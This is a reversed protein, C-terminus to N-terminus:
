MCYDFGARPCLLVEHADVSRLHVRVSCAPPPRPAPCEHSPRTPRVHTIGIWVCYLYCFLIGQLSVAEKPLRQWFSPFCPHFYLHRNHRDSIAIICSPLLRLLIFLPFLLAFLVFLRILSSTSRVLFFSFFRVVVPFSTVSLSSTDCICWRSAAVSASPIM